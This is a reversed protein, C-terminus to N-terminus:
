SESTVKDYTIKYKTMSFSLKMKNRDYILGRDSYLDRVLLKKKIVIGRLEVGMDVNLRVLKYTTFLFASIFVIMVIIARNRISNNM